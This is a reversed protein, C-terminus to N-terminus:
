TVVFREYLQLAIAHVMLMMVTFAGNWRLYGRSDIGFRGQMGLHMGSFPSISVGVAWAMLYTMGLLNPDAPVTSLLGQATAISIVPHVGVISLGVMALLLLWAQTAGVREIGPIWGTAALVAGVGAGLVAAALFLALEGAMGPLGTRVHERLMAPADGAHRVFLVVVTVVLASASILTLVPLQPLYGHVLLVSLALLGPVWLASFHMPYGRYERADPWRSLQFASLLLGIAALPLGYLSLTALTAGPAHSLAIGMAAFFPSWHAALAFGRSLTAAQLASLPRQRSQRDGIIMVASLNIVAGFLHVGLLTRWLAPRGTPLRTDREAAPLSVLRLFTVSALMALLAQNGAMAQIWSPRHVDPALLLGGLGVSLMALTQTRQLGQLRRWLLLGAVWFGAGAVPRLEALGLGAGISGAVALVMLWGAALNRTAESSAGNM